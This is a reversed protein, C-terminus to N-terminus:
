PQQNAQSHAFMLANADNLGQIAADLSCYVIVHSVDCEGHEFQKALLELISQVRQHMVGLNDILSDSEYRHSFDVKLQNVRTQAAQEGLFVPTDIAQTPTNTQQISKNQVSNDQSLSFRKIKPYICTQNLIGFLQLKITMKPYFLCCKYCYFFGM